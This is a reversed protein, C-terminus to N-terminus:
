RGFVSISATFRWFEESLDPGGDTQRSGRELAADLIGLPGFETMALRAGMGASFVNETVKAGQILFPLSARHYGLRVPFSGEGARAGGWELGFGLENVRQDDLADDAWSASKFGAVGTIRPALRASAGVAFQVPIDFSRPASGGELSDADLQGSLTVSAGIRAVDRIDWRAGATVSPGSYEWSTRSSFSQLNANASDPFTRVTTRQLEGTYLGGALGFALSPSAEYSLAVQLQSVGGTSRIEDRTAVTDPGLAIEGTSVVGWSQDLVSGFGGSVVWRTGLPYLIRILPFRTGGIEDSEGDFEIKTVYPQFSAVLGRYSTGAVEAPNVLSPNLGQLGVGIGGLARARADLPALPVGLGGTSFLSQAAAPAASALAALVILLARKM